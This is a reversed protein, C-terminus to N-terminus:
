RYWLIQPAELPVALGDFAPVIRPTYDAAPRHAPIRARYLRAQPEGPLADGCAMSHREPEASGQPEAYLEIFRHLAPGPLSEELWFVLGNVAILTWLVVPIGKRPATDRLPIM